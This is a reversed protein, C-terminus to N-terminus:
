GNELLLFNQTINAEGFLYKVSFLRQTGSFPSKKVHKCTSQCTLRCRLCKRQTYFHKQKCSWWMSGNTLQLFEFLALPHPSPLSISYKEEERRERAKKKVRVGVLHNSNRGPPYERTYAIYTHAAGDPLTKTGNKHRKQRFVPICKVWKPWSDPITKPPIIPSYSRM